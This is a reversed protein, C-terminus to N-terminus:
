TQSREKKSFQHSEIRHGPACQSAQELLAAAGSVALWSIFLAPVDRAVAFAFPVAIWISMCYFCDMLAGLTTDGLFARLKVVLDGPGDEAVLFHTLRWTALACLVFRTEISFEGFM